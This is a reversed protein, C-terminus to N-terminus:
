ETPQTRRWGDRWLVKAVAKGILEVDRESLKQHVAHAVEHVTIELLRSDNMTSELTIKRGPYDCLGWINAYRLDDREVRWRERVCEGTLRSGPILDLSFSGSRKKRTRDTDRRSTPM